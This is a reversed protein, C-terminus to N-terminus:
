DIAGKIAGIIMFLFLIYWLVGFFTSFISPVGIDVLFGYPQILIDKTIQLGKMFKSTTKWSDTYSAGTDLSVSDATIPIIDTNNTLSGNVFNANVYYSAPSSNFDSIGGFSPNYSQVGVDYLGLGLNISLMIVVGLVFSYNAM